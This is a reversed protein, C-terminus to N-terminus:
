DKQPMKNQIVSNRLKTNTCNSDGPSILEHITNPFNFHINTGDSSGFDSNENQNSGNIRSKRKLTKQDSYNQVPKMNSYHMNSQFPQICPETFMREILPQTKNKQIGDEMLEDDNQM